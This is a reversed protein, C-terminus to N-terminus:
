RFLYLSTFFILTVGYHMFLCWWCEVNPSQWISRMWSGNQEEAERKQQALMLGWFSYLYNFYDYWFWHQFHAKGFIVCCIVNNCADILKYFEIEEQSPQIIHERVLTSYLWNQTYIFSEITKHTLSNNFSHLICEQALHQSPLWPM